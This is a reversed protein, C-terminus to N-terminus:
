ITRTACRRGKSHEEEMSDDKGKEKYIYKYDIEDDDRDDDYSEYSRGAFYQNNYCVDSLSIRVLLGKEQTAM